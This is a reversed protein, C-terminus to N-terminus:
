KPRSRFIRSPFKKSEIASRAKKVFTLDDDLGLKVCFNEYSSLNSLILKVSRDLAQQVKKKAGEQTEGPPIPNEKAKTYSSYVKIDRNQTELIRHWLKTLLDMRKDAIFAETLLAVIISLYDEKNEFDFSAGWNFLRFVKFLYDLKGKLLYQRVLYVYADDGSEEYDSYQGTTLSHMDQYFSVFRLGNKTTVPTLRSCQVNKDSLQTKM